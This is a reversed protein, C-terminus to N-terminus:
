TVEPKLRALFKLTCFEWSKHIKLLKKAFDTLNYVLKHTLTTNSFVRKEPIKNQDYFVPFLPKKNHRINCASTQYTRVYVLKDNTAERQRCGARARTTISKEGCHRMNHRGEFSEYKWSDTKGNENEMKLRNGDTKGFACVLVNINGLTENIRPDSLTYAQTLTNTTHM